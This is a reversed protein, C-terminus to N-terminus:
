PERRQRLRGDDRLLRDLGALVALENEHDILASPASSPLRFFLRWALWLRHRGRGIAGAAGVRPRGEGDLLSGYRDTLAHAVVDHNFFTDPRSLHDDGFTLESELVAGAHLQAIRVAVKL